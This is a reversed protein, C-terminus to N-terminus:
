RNVVTTVTKHVTSGDVTAQVDIRYLGAAVFQGNSNKLNWVATNNTGKPLEVGNRLVAVVNNQTNLVRVTVTADYNLTFRATVPTNTALKGPTATLAGIAPLVAGSAVTQVRFERSSNAGATFTLHNLSRMNVSQHTVADVIRFTLNQPLSSMNPWSLTVNGGSKSQVFVRWELQGAHNSLAQALRANQNAISGDMSVTVDQTPGQPPEFIQLSSSGAGTVVGIYNELDQGRTSKGELKLRWHNATQVWPEEAAPRGGPAFAEFIPPFNLTLDQATLVKLWYGRNPQLVATIGQVYRYNNVTPDWYALYPSVVNQSVLSAFTFSQAPNAASVGVLQSVPIAYPYPNGILNWGSKLQLNPAGTQMDPPSSANNLQLVEETPHIAPNLILWFGKGRAASTALIYGNQVPDWEYATYDTPSNLGLVVDLSSDTYVWPSSVLNAAPQVKLTKTASVRVIGDHKIPQPPGPTSTVTVSYPLDGVEIGDSEVQWEVFALTIPNVSFIVKEAPDNNLISMGAPLNLRIRVDNIQVGTYVDSYGGVNDVYVRITFPNNGLGNTGTAADDQILIHPADVVTTYPQDSPRNPIPSPRTYKSNGWTDHFYSNIIRIGNIPISGGSQPEYKILFQENGLFVDGFIFDGMQNTDAASTPSGIVYPASGVVVEDVNTADSNQNQSDSTAVTPGLDVQLGYASTQGLCFQVYPPFNSPDAARNIRTDVLLPKRGPVNVFVPTGLLGAPPDGNNPLIGLQAGYWFGLQQAATGLNILQWNIRCADGVVDMRVRTRVGDSTQEAYQYRGSAGAYFQGSLAAGFLTSSVAGTGPDRRRITAYSWNGAPDHPMGFTYMMDNDITAPIQGLSQAVDDQISGTPGSGFGIRGAGNVTVGPVFCPGNAGGYTVTGGGGISCRFLENARSNIGYGPSHPATNMPDICIHWGNPPFPDQAMVSMAGGLLGIAMLTKALTRTM